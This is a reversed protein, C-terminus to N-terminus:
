VSLFLSLSLSRSLDVRTGTERDRRKGGATQLRSLPAEIALNMARRRTPMTMVMSMTEIIMKKTESIAGPSM